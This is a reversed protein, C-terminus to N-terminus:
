KRMLQTMYTIFSSPKPSEKIENIYVDRKRRTINNNDKHVTELHTFKCEFSLSRSGYTNSTTKISVNSIDSLKNDDPMYISEWSGISYSRSSRDSSYRMCDDDSTNRSRNSLKYEISYSRIRPKSDAKYDISYSRTRNKSSAKYDLSNNRSRNPMKRSNNIIDYM